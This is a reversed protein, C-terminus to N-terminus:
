AAGLAEAAIQELSVGFHDNMQRLLSRGREAAQEFRNLFVPNGQYRRSISSCRREFTTPRDLEVVGDIVPVLQEEVRLPLFDQRPLGYLVAEDAPMGCLVHSACIFAERHHGLESLLRYGEVGHLVPDQTKYRGIDHLLAGVVLLRADLDHKGSVAAAFRSAVRSVAACHRIWPAEKGYQRLLQLAEEASLPRIDDSM